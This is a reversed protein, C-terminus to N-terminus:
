LLDGGKSVPSSDPAAEPSLAEHGATARSTDRSRQKLYKYVEDVVGFLVYSMVLPFLVIAPSTAYHFVAIVIACIGLMRIAHRPALVFLKVKDKPYHITSVMLYSLGLALAALLWVASQLEFHRAFLVFAAITGGAAPTPLGTFINCQDSQYANFRALRLASCIVFFIAPVSNVRAAATTLEAGEPPFSTYILVAPAVGFSVLDCLSDLEKGFESVSKTIRAVSGDLIDFVIAALILYVAKEYQEGISAFISVVGCYLNLTTFVSALVNIPRRRVRRKTRPRKIKKILRPKSIAMDLEQVDQRAETTV